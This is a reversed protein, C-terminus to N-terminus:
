LSQSALRGMTDASNSFFGVASHAPRAVVKTVTDATEEEQSQPIWTRGVDWISLAAGEKGSGIAEKCQARVHKIVMSKIM